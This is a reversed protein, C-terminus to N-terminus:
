FAWIFGRSPYYYAWLFCMEDNFDEGWSVTRDTTNNYECTLRLGESGDFEMSPDFLTLPPEAWNTSVHLETGPGTASSAREIRARTGLQHTHSTLGFIKIPPDSANPGPVVRFMTATGTSRAPINIETTGWFILNVEDYTSGDNPVLEFDVTGQIDDRPAGFYNVYHFEIRVMQNAELRLATGAPYELGAELQQAIFLPVGGTLIDIFPTCRQPTTVETSASSKYVIMHHSGATIHTRIARVLVDTDNGLRRTICVTNEEGATTAIPGISLSLTEGPVVMGGDTGGGGGDTGPMGSDSGGGGSDVGPTGGDTGPTGTTDDGGCGAFSLALAFLWAAYRM